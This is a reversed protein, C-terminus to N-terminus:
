RGPVHRLLEGSPVANPGTVLEGEPQRQRLVGDVEHPGRRADLGRGPDGPEAALVRPVQVIDEDAESAIRFRHELDEVLEVHGFGLLLRPERISPARHQAILEGALQVDLWAIADRKRPGEIRTIPHEVDRAEVADLSGGEIALLEEEVPVVEVLAQLAC